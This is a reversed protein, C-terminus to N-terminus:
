KGANVKAAPAGNSDTKATTKGAKEASRRDLEDQAGDETTIPDKIEDVLKLENLEFALAVGGNELVDEPFELAQTPALKTENIVHLRRSINEIFITKKVAMIIEQQQNIIFYLYLCDDYGSLFGM